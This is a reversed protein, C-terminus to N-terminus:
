FVFLIEYKGLYKNYKVLELEFMIEILEKIFGKVEFIIFMIIDGIFVNLLRKMEFVIGKYLMLSILCYCGKEFDFFFIIFNLCIVIDDGFDIDM